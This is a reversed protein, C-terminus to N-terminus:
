RNIITLVLDAPRAIIAREGIVVIPRQLLMPNAVILEFWEHDSRQDSVSLGLTIFHQDTTRIMDLAGLGLLRSLRQLEVVTPPSTVYDVITANVGHQQLLALAGVCKSCHKYHYITNMHHEKM